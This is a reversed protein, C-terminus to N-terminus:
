KNKCTKYLFSDRLLRVKAPVNLFICCYLRTRGDIIYPKKNLELFLIPHYENKKVLEFIEEVSYGREIERPYLIDREKITNIFNTSDKKTLARELIERCKITNTFNLVEEYKSVDYTSEQINKIANLVCDENLNSVFKRIDSHWQDFLNEVDINDYLSKSVRAV